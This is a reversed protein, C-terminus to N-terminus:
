SERRKRYDDAWRQPDPRYVTVVFCSGTAGNRAVVIHVPTDGCSGLMLASPYPKDDPYRAIVEGNDLIDRVAEPSVGRQFM